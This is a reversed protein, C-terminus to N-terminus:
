RQGGALEIASSSSLARADDAVTRLTARMIHAVFLKIVTWYAAFAERSCDDTTVTRCEYSLLSRSEGYPRVSFSVGIKGWGPEAFDRFAEADAVDHWVITPTWFRGVAGLALEHGADVGLTLWGPMSVDPDGLVIAPPAPQEIRRLKAPLARAWFALDLLPTHITMLDLRFLADWTTAVDADVIRHQAIRADFEPVYRDVLLTEAPLVDRVPTTLQM